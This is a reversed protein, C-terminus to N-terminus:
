TKLGELTTMVTQRSTGLNKGDITFGEILYAGLNQSDRGIVSVVTGRDIALDVGILEASLNVNDLGHRLLKRNALAIGYPLPIEGINLTELRQNNRVGGYGFVIFRRSIATQSSTAIEGVQEESVNVSIVKTLFDIEKTEVRSFDKTVPTVKEYRSFVAGYEVIGEPDLNGSRYADVYQQKYDVPVEKDPDIELVGAEDKIEYIKEPDIYILARAIQSLTERYETGNRFPNAKYESDDQEYRVGQFDYQWYGDGDASEPNVSPYWIPIRAYEYKVRRIVKGTDDYTFYEETRNILVPDDSGYVVPDIIRTFVFIKSIASRVVVGPISQRKYNKIYNDTEVITVKGEDIDIIESISNDVIEEVTDWADKSEVYNVIYGNIDNFTKSTVVSKYKSTTITKPAGFGPVSIFTSDYIYVTGDRELILPEYVGFLASISQYYSQGIEIDLRKVRFDPLNTSYSLGCAGFVINLITYFTLGPIPVLIVPYPNGGLDYIPPFDEVTLTMATSDYYVTSALPSINIRKALSDTSVLAVSDTPANNDWGISYNSANLEGELMTYWTTTGSITIGLELKYLSSAVILSRDSPRSLTVNVEKGIKSPAAKVQFATIPIETDDVSFRVTYAQYNAPFTIVPHIDVSFIIQDIEPEPFAEDSATMDMGMEFVALFTQELNIVVDPDLHLDFDVEAELFLNAEDDIRLFSEDDIDVGFEIPDIEFYTEISMSPLMDIGLTLTALLGFAADLDVDLEIGLWLEGDIPGVTTLDVIPM